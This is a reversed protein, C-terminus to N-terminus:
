LIELVNPRPGNQPPSITQISEISNELKLFNGIGVTVREKHDAYHMATVQIDAHRLFRSAAHIGSKTAIISGAEKRLTHLPKSANVGNLRLWANLRKFVCECRYQQGWERSESEGSTGGVVFPGTAKAYYGRLVAIFEEEVPVAGASDESKLGGAETAEIRILGGNFDVQRWLLKDIEGRRLGAGIALLLVLFADPDSASLERNAADFLAAPDISSNYRMSERPFMECEWFPIPDPHQIGTIFKLMKKSFLARAQRILSNASIKKTRQLAPSKGAKGVFRIRWSQIAEATLVSLPAEEIKARYASKKSAAFRKRTKSVSLIDGAILRLSRAYSGFTAPRGDFVQEAATIWAGITAATSPEKQREPRHKARAGEVGLTLLDQYIDRAMRAAADKNGTRLGFSLRHAKFCLQMAWHPSEKGAGSIPKFIRDAWYRSDTKGFSLKTKSPLRKTIRSNM